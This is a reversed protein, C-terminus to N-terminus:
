MEKVLFSRVRRCRKREKATLSVAEGAALLLLAQAMLRALNDGIPTLDNM